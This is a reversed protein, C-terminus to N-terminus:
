IIKGGGLVIDGLYFVASQGPTPARNPEEFKIKIRNEDQVIKAKTQLMSYRTKVDVDIWDEIKDVLLLNIDEVEIEKKYLDKQEGVIVENKEYNFGVVFLPVKNSIGLGKRQGITYYMIGIHDGIVKGTQIDVMKGSKAPIYNQLFQKFDREGIFCIGTSDKKHAVPLNLDEAIKRVEQKTINGLPFLSAQLQKQNLQCLFYTQDKNQDIGKLMVSDKGKHHEVRAYHGTAIYDANLEEAYELFAKFKIHKNCLIDPNPTRGKTYEDIFYTFVKDWYEKIFDVRRIEIGLHKAVAKADNYDQEQPCIDNDNTPNGLIDNNLQSDWNRMFVGIVEYGQEKLLYAAVASDVGGSLGLVVRKKM